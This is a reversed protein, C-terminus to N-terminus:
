ERQGGAGHLLDWEVPLPPPGAPRRLAQLLWLVALTALVALAATAIFWPLYQQM